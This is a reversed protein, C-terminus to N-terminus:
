AKLLLLKVEWDRRSNLNIRAEIDGLVFEEPCDQLTRSILEERLTGDVQWTLTTEANFHKVYSDIYKGLETKM